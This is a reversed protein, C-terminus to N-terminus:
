FRLDGGSLGIQKKGVHLMREIGASSGLSLVSSGSYHCGISHLRVLSYLTVKGQDSVALM